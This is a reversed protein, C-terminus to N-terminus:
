AGGKLSDHNLTDIDAIDVHLSDVELGTKKSFETLLRAIGQELEKKGEKVEKVM